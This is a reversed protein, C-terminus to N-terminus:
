DTRSPKPKTGAGYMAEHGKVDFLAALTKAYDDRLKTRTQEYEKAVTQKIGSSLEELRLALLNDHGVSLIRHYYLLWVTALARREAVYRHWDASEPKAGDMLTTANDLQNMLDKMLPQLLTITENLESQFKQALSQESEDKKEDKKTL